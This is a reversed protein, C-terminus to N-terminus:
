SESGRTAPTLHFLAKIPGGGQPGRADGAGPGQAKRMPGQRSLVTGRTAKGADGTEQSETESPRGNVAAKEGGKKEEPLVAGPQAPGEALPAILFYLNRGGPAQEDATVTVRYSGPALVTSRYRIPRETKLTAASALIANLEGLPTRDSDTLKREQFDVAVGGSKGAPRAPTEALAAQSFVFIALFLRQSM